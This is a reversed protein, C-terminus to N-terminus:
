CYLITPHKAPSVTSLAADGGWDAERDGGAEAAGEGAAGGAAAGEGLEWVAM